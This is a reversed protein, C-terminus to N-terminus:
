CYQTKSQHCPIEIYKNLEKIEKMLVNYIEWSTDWKYVLSRVWLGGAEAEQTTPNCTAGGYGTQFQSKLVRITCCQKWQKNIRSISKDIRVYDVM